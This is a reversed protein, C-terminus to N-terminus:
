STPASAPTASRKARAPSTSPPPNAPSSSGGTPAAPAASSSPPPGSPSTTASVDPSIASAASKKQPFAEEIMALIAQLAASQQEPTQLFDAIDEPEEFDHARDVLGCWILACMAYLRNKGRAMHVFQVPRPLSSNRAQARNTWRIQREKDLTILIPQSEM